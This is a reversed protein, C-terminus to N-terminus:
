ALKIPQEQFFIRKSDLRHAAFAKKKRLSYEIRKIKKHKTYNMIGYSIKFHLFYPFDFREHIFVELSLLGYFPSRDVFTVRIGGKTAACLLALSGDPGFTRSCGIFYATLWSRLSRTQQSPKEQLFTRKTNLICELLIQTVKKRGIFNAADWFIRVHQWRLQCREKLKRM